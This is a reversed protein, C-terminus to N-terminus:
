SIIDDVSNNNQLKTHIPALLPTNRLYMAFSDSRWRLRTKITLTDGGACHLAVCAGVRVSHNTFKSLEAKDLFQYVQQACEQISKRADNDTINYIKSNRVFVAVPHNSPIHLKKARQLIRTAAAVVCFDPNNTNKSFLIVQGNDNNKQFRWCVQLLDYPKNDSFSNIGTVSLSNIIKFDAAIFAKSTNDINLEFTSGSKKYKNPQNWESKRMGLQSGLVMWDAMAAEFSNPDAYRAKDLWWKVM